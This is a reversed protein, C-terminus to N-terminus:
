LHCDDDEVFSYFNWLAMWVRRYNKRVVIEKGHVIEKSQKSKSWRLALENDIADFDSEKFRSSVSKGRGDGVKRASRGSVDVEVFLSGDFVTFDLGVIMVLIFIFREFNGDVVNVREVDNFFGLVFKRVLPRGCGGRGIFLPNIAGDRLSEVEIVWVRLKFLDITGEIEVFENFLVLIGVFLGTGGTGGRLDLIGRGDNLPGLGDNLGWGGCRSEDVFVWRFM